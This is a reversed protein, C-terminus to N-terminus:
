NGDLGPRESLHLPLYRRKGPRGDVDARDLREGVPSARDDVDVRVGAAELDGAIEACVERYAGPDTPVLRVQTPALWTPLRPPDRTVARASATVTAREVSGVPKCCLLPTRDGSAQAVDFGFREAGDLSLQISGTEVARGSVVTVFSLGVPWADTM